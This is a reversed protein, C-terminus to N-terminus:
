TTSWSIEINTIDNGRVLMYIDFMMIDDKQINYVILASSFRM